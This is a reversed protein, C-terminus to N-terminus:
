AADGPGCLRRWLPLTLPHIALAWYVLNAPIFIMSLAAVLFAMPVLTRMPDLSMDGVVILMVGGMAIAYAIGALAFALWGRRGRGLLFRTLPVFVIWGLGAIGGFLSAFQMMGMASFLPVPGFREFPLMTYIVLTLACTIAFAAVLYALGHRLVACRAGLTETATIESSTM